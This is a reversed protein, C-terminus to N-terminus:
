RSLLPASNPVSKSAEPNGNVTSWSSADIWAQRAATARERAPVGTGNGDLVGVGAGDVLVGAEGVGVGVGVGEGELVVGVGEGVVRLSTIVLSLIVGGVSETVPTLWTPILNL